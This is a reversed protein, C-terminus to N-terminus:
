APVEETFRTLLMDKMCERLLLNHEEKKLNKLVNLRMGQLRERARKKDTSTIVPLIDFKEPIKIIEEKPFSKTLARYRNFRRKNTSIKVIRRYENFKGFFALTGYNWYSVVAYDGNIHRYFMPDTEKGSRKFTTRKLMKTMLDSQRLYNNYGEIDKKREEISEDLSELCADRQEVTEIDVVSTDVSVQITTIEDKLIVYLLGARMGPQWGKYGVLTSKGRGVSVLQGNKMIFYLVGVLIRVQSM